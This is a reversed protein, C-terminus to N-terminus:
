KQYKKQTLQPLTSRIKRRLRDDFLNSNDPNGMWRVAFRFFEDRDAPQFCEVGDYTVKLTEKLMYEVEILYLIAVAKMNLDGQLYELVGEMKRSIGRLYDQLHDNQPNEM